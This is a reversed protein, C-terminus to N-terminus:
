KIRELMEAVLGPPAEELFEIGTYYVRGGDSRVHERCRVVRGKVVAALEDGMALRFEHTAGEPFPFATELSMGGLSMDRLTVFVDFATAHGHIRNLIEIRPSRRREIFM